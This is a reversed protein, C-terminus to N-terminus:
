SFGRRYAFWSCGPLFLVLCFAAASLALSNHIASALPRPLGSRFFGSFTGPPGNASMSFCPRDRPGRIEGPANIQWLAQRWRFQFALEMFGLWFVAARYRARLSQNRRPFGVWPAAAGYKMALLFATARERAHAIGRAELVLGRSAGGALM